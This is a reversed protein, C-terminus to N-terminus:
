PHGRNDLMVESLSLLIEDINGEIFQIDAPIMFKDESIQGELIATAEQTTHIIGRETQAKLMIGEWLWFRKGMAKIEWVECTKGRVEEMKIPEGGMKAIAKVGLPINDQSPSELLEKLIINQEKTGIKKDLDLRYIWDGELITVLHRLGYMQTEYTIYRAERMGWRDFYLMETGNESGVIKYEIIGAEIDYRHPQAVAEDLFIGLGMLFLVFGIKLHERM